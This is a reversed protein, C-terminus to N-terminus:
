EEDIASKLSGLQMKTKKFAGYLKILTKHDQSLDQKFGTRM